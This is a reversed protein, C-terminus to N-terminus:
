DWDEISSPEMKNISIYYSSEDETYVSFDEELARSILENVDETKTKLVDQLIEVLDEEEVEHETYDYGYDHCVSSDLNEPLHYDLIYTGIITDDNSTYIGWGPEIATFLIEINYGKKAIVDRWMKLMPSWATETDIYFADEEFPEIYTIYGRCSYDEIDIDAGRLINGLWNSDADPDKNEKSTWKQIDYYLKEADAGVFTITSSCWNPM